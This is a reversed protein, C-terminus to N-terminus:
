PFLSLCLMTEDLAAHERNLPGGLKQRDLRRPYRQQGDPIMNSVDGTNTTQKVGEGIATM